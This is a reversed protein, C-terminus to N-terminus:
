ISEDVVEEGWYNILVQIYLNKTIRWNKYQYTVEANFCDPVLNGKGDKDMSYTVKSDIIEDYVEGSLLKSVVSCEENVRYLNQGSIKNVDADFTVDSLSGDFGNKSLLKEYLQWGNLGKYSFDFGELFSITKNGNEDFLGEELSDHYDETWDSGDKLNVDSVLYRDYKTTSEGSEDEVITREVLEVSVYDANEYLLRIDDTIVDTNEAEETVEEIPEVYIAHEAVYPGKDGSYNKNSTMRWRLFVAVLVMIVTAIILTPLINNKM